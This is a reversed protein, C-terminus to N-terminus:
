GDHSPTQALPWHVHPGFLTHSKVQSAGGHWASQSAPEEHESVQGSPTSPLQLRSWHSPAAIVHGSPMVATQSALQGPQDPSRKGAV